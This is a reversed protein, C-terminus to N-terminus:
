KLNPGLFSVATSGYLVDPLFQPSIPAVQLQARASQSSLQRSGPEVRVRFWIGIGLKM